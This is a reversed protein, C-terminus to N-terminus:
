VWNKRVAGLESYYSSVVRDTWNLSHVFQGFEHYYARLSWPPPHWFDVSKPLRSSAMIFCHEVDSGSFSVIRLAGGVGWQKALLLFMLRSVSSDSIRFECILDLFGSVACVCVLTVNLWLVWFCCAIHSLLLWHYCRWSSTFYSFNPDDSRSRDPISFNRGFSMCNCSCAKFICYLKNLSVTDRAV